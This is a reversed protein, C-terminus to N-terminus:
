AVDDGVHLPLMRTQLARAENRRVIVAVRAAIRQLHPPAEVLAGGPMWLATRETVALAAADSSGRGWIELEAHGGTEGDVLVLVIQGGRGRGIHGIAWAREIIEGGAARGLLASGDADAPLALAERAQRVPGYMRGKDSRPAFGALLSSTGLGTLGAAIRGLFGRRNAAVDSRSSPHSAM